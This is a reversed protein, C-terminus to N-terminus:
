QSLSCALWLALGHHTVAWVESGIDERVSRAVKVINQVTNTCKESLQKRLERQSNRGQMHLELLTWTLTVVRGRASTQSAYTQEVEAAASYVRMCVFITSCLVTPRHTMLQGLHGVDHAALSSGVLLPQVSRM